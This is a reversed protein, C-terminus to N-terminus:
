SSCWRYAASKLRPVKSLTMMAADPWQQRKKLGSPKTASCLCPPVSAMCGLLVQCPRPELRGTVGNDWGVLILGVGWLDPKGSSKQKATLPFWVMHTHTHTHTHTHYQQPQTHTPFSTLHYRKKNRATFGAWYGGLGLLWM